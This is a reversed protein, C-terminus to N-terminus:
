SLSTVVDSAATVVHAPRVSDPDAEIRTARFTCHGGCADLV